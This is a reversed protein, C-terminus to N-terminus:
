GRRPSAQPPFLGEEILEQRLAVRVADNMALLNVTVRGIATKGIILPGEWRFHREWKHRRPNFLRVLKTRSTAGDIGSLNPGKHRNCHLCAYALNGLTSTGGHQRPVVHEIEFVGPHASDPLQCYECCNGARRRVAEILADDM